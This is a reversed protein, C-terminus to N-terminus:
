KDAIHQELVRDAACVEGLTIMACKNLRNLVVQQHQIILYLKHGTVAGHRGNPLLALMIRKQSLGTNGNSNGSGACCTAGGLLISANAYIAISRNTVMEM